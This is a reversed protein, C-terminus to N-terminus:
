LAKQEIDCSLATLYESFNLLVNGFVTCHIVHHLDKDMYAIELRRFIIDRASSTVCIFRCLFGIVYRGTKYVNYTSYNYIFAM